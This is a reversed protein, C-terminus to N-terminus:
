GEYKSRQKRVSKHQPSKVPQLASVPEDDYHKPPPSIGGSGRRAKWLPHNNIDWSPPEVSKASSDMGELGLGLTEDSDSDHANLAPSHSDAYQQSRPSFVTDFLKDFAAWTRSPDNLVDSQSTVSSAM